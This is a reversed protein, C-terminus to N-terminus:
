SSLCAEIASTLFAETQQEQGEASLRSGPLVAGLWQDTHWTGGGKLTAATLSAIDHPPPYVNVYWYPEDYSGDGPELGVGVTSDPGPTLLTAIDFHHPWCRVASGNRARAVQHLVGDANDYWRQLQEFAAHDTADFPVGRAVAHMPITYHKGLTFRDPDLGLTEIQSRVWRTGDAITKGSLSFSTLEVDGVVILLAFPHPRVGLRFPRDGVVNSALAGAIWEMNTHSDDERKPLYSIGMAAVFQAAHHLQLRADTLQTALGPELNQWTHKRSRFHAM